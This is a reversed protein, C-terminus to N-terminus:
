PQPKSNSKKDTIPPLNKKRNRDAQKTQKDAPNRVTSKISRDIPKEVSSGDPFFAPEQQPETKVNESDRIEFATNISDKTLITETKVVEVQKANKGSSFIFWLMGVVLLIGVAVIAIIWKISLRFEGGGGMPRCAGSVPDVNWVTRGIRLKVPHRLQTPVAIQLASHSLTVPFSESGIEIFINGSARPPYKVALKRLEVAYCLSMDSANTLFAESIVVIGGSNSVLALAAENFPVRVTFYGEGRSDLVMPMVEGHAVLAPILLNDHPLDATFGHVRVAVDYHFFGFQYSDQQKWLIKYHLATQVNGDYRYMKGNPLTVVLLIRDSPSLCVQSYFATVDAGNLVFSMMKCGIQKVTMLQGQLRDSYEAISHRRVETNFMVGHAQPHTMVEEPLMVVKCGNLNGNQYPYAFARQLMAADRFGWYLPEKDFASVGPYYKVPMVRVGAKMSELLAEVGRGNEIKGKLPTGFNRNYYEGYYAELLRQLLPMTDAIQVDDRVFLAVSIFGGSSGASDITSRYISCVRYGNIFSLGYYDIGPKTIRIYLRMDCLSQKVGPMAIDLGSSTYFIQFGNKCGSIAIYLEKDM